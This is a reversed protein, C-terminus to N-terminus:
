SAGRLESTPDVAGRLDREAQLWDDIDHGPQRGRALYLDYAYRAVDAETVPASANPGPATSAGVAAAADATTTKRNAPKAM